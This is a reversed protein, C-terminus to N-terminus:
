VTDMFNKETKNFLLVSFGLVIILFVLSYCLDWWVIQGTGLTGYRFLEFLPSIPNLEILFRFREPTASLPYVVPTVYMFLQIGFTVIEKLDRYKYTLSSSILGWSLAHLGLILILFPVLCIGWNMSINAGRFFFYLYIVLFMLFQIGFKVLHTTISALPMILRPFYVKGYLGANTTFLTSSYSFSSSFFNWLIIGSLYFLPQPIGDTPIKALDGFIFTYIVMTLLPQIIYWLPGLITQKYAAILDRKVYIFYLDKYQWYERLNIDFFRRKPSIINWESKM